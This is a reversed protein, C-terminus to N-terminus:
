NLCIMGGTPAPIFVNDTKIVIIRGGKKRKEEYIRRIARLQRILIELEAKSLGNLNRKFKTKKELWDNIIGIKEVNTMDSNIWGLEYFLKFVKRRLYQREKGEKSYEKKELEARLDKIMADCEAMTMESSHETRGGTYNYVLIAKVSEDIGLRNLLSYLIRNQEKTRKM